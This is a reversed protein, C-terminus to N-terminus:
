VYLPYFFGQRRLTMDIPATGTFGLAFAAGALVLGFVGMFALGYWINGYATNQAFLRGPTGLAYRIGNIANIGFMNTYNYDYNVKVEVLDDKKVDETM